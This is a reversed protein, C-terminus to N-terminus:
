FSPRLYYLAGLLELGGLVGGVYLPFSVLFGILATVIGLLVVVFNGLETKARLVIFNSFAILGLVLLIGVILIAIVTAQTIQGLIM